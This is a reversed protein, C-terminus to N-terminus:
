AMRVIFRFGLVVMMRFGLPVALVVAQWIELIGPHGTLHPV